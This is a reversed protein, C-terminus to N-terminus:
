DPDAAAGHETYLMKYGVYDPRERLAETVAQIYDDSVWDDDCCRSTTPRPPEYLRQCKPGYLQERNDRYVLVGVGPVLQRELQALLGALM